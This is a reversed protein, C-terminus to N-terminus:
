AQANAAETKVPMKAIRVGAKLCIYRVEHGPYKARLDKLYMGTKADAVVAAELALRAPADGYSRRLRVNHEKCISSLRTQSIKYKAVLEARTAGAAAEAAIQARLSAYAAQEDFFVVAQREPSWLGRPKHKGQRRHYRRIREREAKACAACQYNCVVPTAECKVCVNAKARAIASKLKLNAKM